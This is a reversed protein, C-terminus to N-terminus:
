YSHWWSRVHSQISAAPLVAAMARYLFFNLTKGQM